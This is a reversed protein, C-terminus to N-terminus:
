LEDKTNKQPKLFQNIMSNRAKPYEKAIHFDIKQDFVIDTIDAFRDQMRGLFKKLNDETIMKLDNGDVLDDNNLDVTRFMEKVREECEETWEQM